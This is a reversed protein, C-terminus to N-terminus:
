SNGTTLQACPEYLRKENSHVFTIHENKMIPLTFVCFFSVVSVCGGFFRFWGNMFSSNIYAFSLSFALMFYWFIRFYKKLVSSTHRIEKKKHKEEVDSFWKTQRGVKYSGVSLFLIFLSFIHSNIANTSKTLPSVVSFLHNKKSEERACATWVNASCSEIRMHTESSLREFSVFADFPRMNEYATAM